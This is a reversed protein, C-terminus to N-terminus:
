RSQFRVSLDQQAAVAIPHSWAPEFPDAWKGDLSRQRLHWLTGLAAGLFLSTFPGELLALVSGYGLDFALIALAAIAYRRMQSPVTLAEYNMWGLYLLAPIGFNGYMFIFLNDSPNSFDQAFFRMAGSLGGLGTAFPFIDNNSIWRWADPWTSTIRMGFSALSFVGGGTPMLLGSTGIPLMIMLLTMAVCATCLMAYWTRRPLCFIAAVAIYALLAGKQTTLFIAGGTAALVLARLVFRCRQTIVFALVPLLAAADISSRTFGAVRKDEGSTIDWGRSVDVKLGGVTTEMGSWPYTLVFKDLYLGVLSVLWLLALLRMLKPAPETLASSLIFGFLLPLLFKAGYVPPVLSHFNLYGVSGHVAVIIAFVWYAPHIAGRMYQRIFLLVLPVILLFDRVFIADDKGIANLGYRLPAEFAYVLVFLTAALLFLKRM